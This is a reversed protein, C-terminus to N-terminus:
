LRKFRHPRDNCGILAALHDFEDRGRLAPDRLDRARHTRAAFERREVVGLREGALRGTKMRTKTDVPSADPSISAAASAAAIRARSGSMSNSPIPLSRIAPAPNVNVILVSPQALM